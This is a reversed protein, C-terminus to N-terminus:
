PEDDSGSESGEDESSSDSSARDDMIPNAAASASRRPDMGGGQDFNALRAELDAIRQSEKDEDLNKRNLGGTGTRRGAAATKSKNKNKPGRRPCVFRYLSLLTRQDLQDIDLEIEQNDNGLLDPRARRIIDIARELQDGEFNSIRVALERKMDFTVTEDEDSESANSKRPKKKQSSGLADSGSISKRKPQQPKPPKYDGSAGSFSKRQSSGLSKSPKPMSTSSSLSKRKEGGKAGQQKMAELNAQMLALQREM